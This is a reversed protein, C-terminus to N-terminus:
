VAMETRRILDDQAEKYVEVFYASFGAVRVVLDQYDGPAKQAARLMDASVVNIQLEMGGGRFYSEMVARLKRDGGEGQLATPHFKMNCLTGNSYESQDFKLISNITAFPGSKDMSQVPSIGDSLPAGSKRGDPTAAVMGGYVVNLTVPWCGATWHNGRPSVGKSIAQAYTDATFKLYKDAEPDNNGFHSCRGLIYQHLDEYGEWDAMLADYLERTTAIKDRFCVQDIINLSDAVNGHGISSNGTNTYRSGGWMVDLGSEMCGDVTASLLPMPMREAYLYEYCNVMSVQWKTYYDIQAKYAALVEDMSKMDYLYGTAPGTRRSEPTGKAHWPNTGNNIACWLAAPLITYSNAGDGGSNAFDSGCVCPEVCGILCYNRADELPIGRRMLAKEALADWEFCPVGGVQKTTEIGAEWLEDPTGEHLRLALPPNHIKLRASSQMVMYTVDNTVDRGEKDTGGLTILQGSTYGPSSRTARESWAKNIEAVKLIFMDTLEQAQARNLKGEALDKELYKGCYQDLRGYSIGHPQSDLLIGLQYLFCAQLADHYSQCPKDIIRDLRDAMDLLEAKRVPDACTEAQRLCERGYRKTYLIIGETVQQVARYFEYKRGEDGQIGKELLARKKEAAERAVAGLGKDLVTWFNGVFHGIPHQCNGNARFNLVGNGLVEANYEEPYIDDIAASMCNRRWFDGTKLIYEKDEPALDYPDTSRGPFTDIEDLFWSFSYEPYLACCRFEEGPHGVILEHDRVPTPMNEFLNRLCGARKLIGPLQPNAMYYETVLRYRSIDIRPKKGRYLARIRQVRESIPVNQYM